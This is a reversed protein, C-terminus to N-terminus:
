FSHPTQLKNKKEPSRRQKNTSTVLWPNQKVWEDIIPKAYDYGASDIESFKDYELTTYQHVPPTLHLDSVAAVSKRHQESSVWVLLEQIDGMSPVRVTTAFPNWSNLLLWWGSIETGYQYYSRQSEPSVDVAIVTRAGMKFRMVDAPVANLYGGDVLLSDDEAIPPLYGTLSMSARVYKWLLGKTHVVLCQKQLDVSTCFFNLVLDQQFSLLCYRM